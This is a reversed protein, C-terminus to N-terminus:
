APFFEALPTKNPIAVYRWGLGNVEGISGPPFLFDGRKARDRQGIQWGNRTGHHGMEFEHWRRGIRVTFACRLGFPGQVKCSRGLGVAYATFGRRVFDIWHVTYGTDRHRRHAAAIARTIDGFTKQRKAM